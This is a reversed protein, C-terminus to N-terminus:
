LPTLDTGHDTPSHYISIAFGIPQQAKQVSCHGDLEVNSASGRHLVFIFPFYDIVIEGM